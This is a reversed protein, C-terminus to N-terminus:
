AALQLLLIESGQYPRIRFDVNLWDSHSYQERWLFVLTLLLTAEGFTVIVAFPSFIFDDREIGSVQMIRLKMSLAQLQRICANSNVSLYHM